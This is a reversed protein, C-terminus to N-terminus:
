GKCQGMKKGNLWRTLKLQLMLIIILAPYIMASYWWHWGNYYFVKTHLLVLEYALSFASWGVIYLAKLPLSKGHPYFNVILSNLAPYVGFVVIFTVFDVGKSFYGYQNFKLDFIIDVFQQLFLTFLITTYIEGWTVKKPMFILALNFVVISVILFVMKGKDGKRMKLITDMCFSELWKGEKHRQHKEFLIDYLLMVHHYVCTFKCCTLYLRTM